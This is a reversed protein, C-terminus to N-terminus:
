DVLSLDPSSTYNVSDVVKKINKMRYNETYRNHLVDADKHGVLLNIQDTKFKIQQKLNNIFSYRTSHLTKATVHKDFKPDYITETIGLYGLLGKKGRYADQFFYGIKKGDPNGFLFESKSSNVFDMFDFLLSQHVPVLRHATDNKLHKQFVSKKYPVLNTNLNLCYTDDDIILDSKTLQSIETKRCGTYFYLQFAWYRFSYSKHHKFQKVHDLIKLVEDDTFRLRQVSVNNNKVDELMTTRIPIDLYAQNYLWKFFMKVVTINVNITNPRLRQTKIFTDYDRLHKDNVFTLRINGVFNIFRDLIIKNGVYTAQAGENALKKALYLDVYDRLFDSAKTNTIGYRKNNIDDTAIAIKKVAEKYNKTHLSHKIVKKGYFERLEANLPHRIYYTKNNDQTLYKIKAM